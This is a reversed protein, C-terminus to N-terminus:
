AEIVEEPKPKPHNAPSEGPEFGYNPNTFNEIFVEAWNEAEAKSAWPTTDPWTPQFFFPANNPSPVENDWIRIANASDIEYRYRSM